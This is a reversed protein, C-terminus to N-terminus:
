GVLRCRNEIVALGFRDDECVGGEATWLRVVGYGAAEIRQLAEGVTGHAYGRRPDSHSRRPQPRRSGMSASRSIPMPYALPTDDNLM